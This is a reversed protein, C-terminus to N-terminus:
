GLLESDLAFDNPVGKVGYRSKIGVGWGEFWCISISELSALSDVFIVRSVKEPWGFSVEHM